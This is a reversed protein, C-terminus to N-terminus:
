SVFGGGGRIDAGTESENEVAVPDRANVYIM